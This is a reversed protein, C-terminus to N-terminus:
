IAHKATKRFNKSEFHRAHNKLSIISDHSLTPHRQLTQINTQYKTFQYHVNFGHKYTFQLYINFLRQFIQYNFFLTM